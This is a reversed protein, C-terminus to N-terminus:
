ASVPIGPTLVGKADFFPTLNKPRWDEQRSDGTADDAGENWVTEHQYNGNSDAYLSTGGVSTISPSSSPFTLPPFPYVNNNVDVNATGSDGASGFISYGLFDAYQYFRNFSDFVKQGDSTFLTNETAAWSQSIIKGLHHEVAYKELQLFEPLGQVGETEAVPSTLVVINADPAMAHSWQIDLSTEEAWGVMDSNTPDFAVSGIPALQQFSPPDPLGYDKDFQQLDSLATPSGFSDIIVITQGKGTYGANLIPTIDYANRYLQPSYCPAQFAAECEAYTPAQQGIWRAWHGQASLAGIRQHTGGAAIATLSLLLSLGCLALILLISLLHRRAPTRAQLTSM